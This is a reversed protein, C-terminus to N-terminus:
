GSMTWIVSVFSMLVAVGGPFDTGPYTTGWVDSSASFRPLGQSERNTAAPITVIVVFLAAVNIITGVSNFNAIWKTPMSSISAHILMVLTSLLFIHWDEVVYDPNNTSAAALVMAAVKRDALPVVGENSLRVLM